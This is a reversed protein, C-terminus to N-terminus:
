MSLAAALASAGCNFTETKWVIGGVEAINAANRPYLGICVIRFEKGWLSVPDSLELVMAVRVPFSKKGLAKAGAKMDVKSM